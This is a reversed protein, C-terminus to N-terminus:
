CVFVNGALVPVDNTGLGFRKKQVLQVTPQIPRDHICGEPTYIRYHYIWILLGGGTKGDEAASRGHFIPREGLVSRAAPDGHRTM